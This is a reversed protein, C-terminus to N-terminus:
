EQVEQPVHGRLDANEIRLPGPSFGGPCGTEQVRARRQVIDVGEGNVVLVVADLNVLLMVVVTGAAIHSHRFALRGARPVVEPENGGAEGCRARECPSGKAAAAVPVHHAGVLHDAGRRGVKVLRRVLDLLM